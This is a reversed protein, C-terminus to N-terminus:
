LKKQSKKLLWAVRYSVKDTQLKYQKQKAIELHQYEQKKKCYLMEKQFLIKRHKLSLPSM